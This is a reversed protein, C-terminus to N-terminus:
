ASSAAATETIRAACPCAAIASDLALMLERSDMRHRWAIEDLCACGEMPINIFLREFAARTMPFSQIVRNVTMTEDIHASPAASELGPLQRDHLTRELVPFLEAEEEGADM